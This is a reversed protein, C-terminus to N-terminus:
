TFGLSPVTRERAASYIRRTSVVFYFTVSFREQAKRARQALSKAPNEM